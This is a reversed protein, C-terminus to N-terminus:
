STYFAPELSLQKLDLNRCMGILTMTHTMIAKIKLGVCVMRLIGRWGRMCNRGGNKFRCFLLIFSNKSVQNSGSKERKKRLFILFISVITPFEMLMKAM